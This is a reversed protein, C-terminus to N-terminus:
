GPAMMFKGIGSDELMTMEQVWEAKDEISGAYRTQDFFEECVAGRTVEVERAEGRITITKKEVEADKSVVLQEVAYIYGKVDENDVYFMTIPHIAFYFLNFVFSMYGPPIIPTTDMKLLPILGFYHARKWRGSMIMVLIFGMSFISFLSTLGGLLLRMVPGHYIFKNMIYSAPLCILTAIAMTSIGTAFGAGLSKALVASDM